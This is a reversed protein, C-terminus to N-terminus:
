RLYGLARLKQVADNSAPRAASVRDHVRSDLAARWSEMRSRCERVRPDSGPLPSKEGPDDALDFVQWRPIAKAFQDIGNFSEICKLRGIAVAKYDVSALKDGESPNVESLVIRPM